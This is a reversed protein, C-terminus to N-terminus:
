DTYVPALIIAIIAGIIGGSYKILFEKFDEM